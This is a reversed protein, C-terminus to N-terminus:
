VEWAEFEASGPVPVVEVAEVTVGAGSRRSVTRLPNVLPSSGPTGAKADLGAAKRWLDFWTALEKISRPAPVDRVGEAIACQAVAAFAAQFDAPPSAVLDLLASHFRSLPSAVIKDHNTHRSEPITDNPDDTNSRKVASRKPNGIEGSAALARLAELEAQAERNGKLIKPM